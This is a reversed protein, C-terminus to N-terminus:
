TGLEQRDMVCRTDWTGGSDTAGTSFRFIGGIVRM